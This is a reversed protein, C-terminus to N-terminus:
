LMEVAKKISDHIGVFIDKLNAEDYMYAPTTILKLNEDVCIERPSCNQHRAGLETLVSATGPDNGITITPNKAGFAKALLAPAICIAVIPKGNQHFGDLVKGVQEDIEFKEGAFAFNSLNKAVGFGGPIVLFDYKEISLDGIPSVKGRAIRASEQLLNRKNKDSADGSTHDVVHHQEKDLSFMDYSVNEMDLSLLSLVSERIEAGDLYGCGSLIVAAKSM